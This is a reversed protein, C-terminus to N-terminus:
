AQTELHKSVSGNVSQASPAMMKIGFTYLEYRVLAKQESELTRANRTETSCSASKLYDQPNQELRRTKWTVKWAYHGLLATSVLPKRHCSTGLLRLRQQREEWYSYQPPSCQIGWQLHPFTARAGHGIFEKRLDMWEFWLVRGHFLHHGSSFCDGAHRISHFM